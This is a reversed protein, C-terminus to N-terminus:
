AAGVCDVGMMEVCEETAATVLEVDDRTDGVALEVGDIGVTLGVFSAALEEEADATALEVSFWFEFLLVILRPGIMPPAMPPSAKIHPLTM